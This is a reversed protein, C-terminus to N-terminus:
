KTGGIDALVARARKVLDLSEFLAVREDYSEDNGHYMIHMRRAEALMEEAIAKLADRQQRLVTPSWDTVNLPPADAEFFNSRFLM